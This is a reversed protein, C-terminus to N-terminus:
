ALSKRYRVPSIKEYKKFLRSFYFQDNIGVNQAIVAVSLPTNELLEKAAKILVTNIYECPSLGICEKFVRRFYGESMNSKKALRAVTIDRMYNEEIFRLAGNVASYGDKPSPKEKIIECFINYLYRQQEIRSIRPSSISKFSDAAIQACGRSLVCPAASICLIDGNAAVANFNVSVTKVGNREFGNLVEFDYSCGCPVYIVDGRGGYLVSGDSLTYRVRIDASILTIVSELRPSRVYQHWGRDSTWYQRVTNGIEFRFDTTAMDRLSIIRVKM